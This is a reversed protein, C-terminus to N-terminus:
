GSKRIGTSAEFATATCLAKMASAIRASTGPVSTASTGIGAAAAATAGASTAASRARSPKAGESTTTPTNPRRM